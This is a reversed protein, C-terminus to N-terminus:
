IASYITVCVQKEVTGIFQPRDPESNEFSSVDWEYALTSRQRKWIELFITGVDDDDDDDDDDYRTELRLATTHCRTLLTLSNVTDHLRVDNSLKTQRYKVVRYIKALIEIVTEYCSL